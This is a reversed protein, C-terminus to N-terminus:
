PKSGGRQAVLPVDASFPGGGAAGPTLTVWAMKRKLAISRTIHVVEPRTAGSEDFLCTAAVHRATPGFADVLAYFKERVEPSELVQARLFEATKPNDSIAERYVDTLLERLRQDEILNRGFKAIPDVIAPDNRAEDWVQRVAQGLEARDKDPINALYETLWDLMLRYADEHKGRALNWAISMKPADTVAESLLRGLVPTLHKQLKPRLHAQIQPWEVLLSRGHWQAIHLLAAERSKLAAEVDDSILRVYAASLEAALPGWTAALESDQNKWDTAIREAATRQISPPLLANLTAETSLPTEWCTASTGRTLRAFGAPEIALAVLGQSDPRRVVEGIPDLGRDTALYVLDGSALPTQPPVQIRLERVPRSTRAHLVYASTLAAFAALVWVAAGM